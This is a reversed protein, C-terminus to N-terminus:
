WNLEQDNVEAFQPVEFIRVGKYKCELEPRWTVDREHLLYSHFPEDLWQEAYTIVWRNSSSGPRGDHIEMVFGDIPFDTSLHRGFIPSRRQVMPIAITNFGDELPTFEPWETESAHRLTTRRSEIIARVDDRKVLRYRTLDYE